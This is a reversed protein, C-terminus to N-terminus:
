HRAIRFRKALILAVNAPYLLLLAALLADSYSLLFTEFVISAVFQVALAIMARNAKEHLDDLSRSLFFGIIALIIMVGSALMWGIEASDVIDPEVVFLFATSCLIGLAGVVITATEMRVGADICQKCCDSVVLYRANMASCALPFTISVAVLTFIVFQVPSVAGFKGLQMLVMPIAAIFSASVSLTVAHEDFLRILRTKKPM